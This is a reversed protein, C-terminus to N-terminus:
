VSDIKTEEAKLKYLGQKTLKLEKSHVKKYVKKLHLLQAYTALQTDFVRREEAHIREGNNQLKQV